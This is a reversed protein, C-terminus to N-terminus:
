LEWQGAFRQYIQRWATGWVWCGSAVTRDIGVRCGFGLYMFVKGIALKNTVLCVKARGRTFRACCTLGRLLALLEWAIRLHLPGKLLCPQRRGIEGEQQKESPVPLVKRDKRRKRGKEKGREKGKEWEREKEM